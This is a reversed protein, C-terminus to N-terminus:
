DTNKRSGKMKRKIEKRYFWVLAPIIISFLAVLDAPQKLILDRVYGLFTPETTYTLTISPVANLGIGSDHVGAYSFFNLVTGRFDTSDLQRQDAIPFAFIDFEVDPDTENIRDTAGTLDWSYIKPLENKEVVVSDQPFCVDSYYAEPIQTASFAENSYKELEKELSKFRPDTYCYQATVFSKGDATYSEVYDIYANM